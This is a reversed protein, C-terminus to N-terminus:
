KLFFDGCLNTFCNRYDLLFHSKFGWWSVEWVIFSQLYDM